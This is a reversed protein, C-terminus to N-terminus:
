VEISAIKRMALFGCCVLILAGIPMCIWPWVFLEMIYGPNMVFILGALFIPM